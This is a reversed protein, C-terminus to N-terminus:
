DDNGNDRLAENIIEVVPQSPEWNDRLSKLTQCLKANKLGVKTAHDTLPGQNNLLENNIGELEFVREKLAAIEKRLSAECEGYHDTECEECYPGYSM